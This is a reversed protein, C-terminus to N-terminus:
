QPALNCCIKNQFSTPPLGLNPSGQTIDFKTTIGTGSIAVFRCLRTQVSHQWLPKDNESLSQVIRLSANTLCSQMREMLCVICDFAHM